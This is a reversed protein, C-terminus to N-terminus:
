YPRMVSVIASGPADFGFCASARFPDLTTCNVSGDTGVAAIRANLFAVWAAHEETKKFGSSGRENGFVDYPTQVYTDQAVATPSSILAAVRM